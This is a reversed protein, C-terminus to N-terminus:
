SVAGTVREVSIEIPSRWKARFVVSTNGPVIRCNSTPVYTFAKLQDFKPLRLVECVLSESLVM